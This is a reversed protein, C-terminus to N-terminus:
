KFFDEKICGEFAKICARQCYGLARSLGDSQIWLISDM